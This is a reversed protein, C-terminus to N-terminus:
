TVKICFRWKYQPDEEFWLVGQEGTTCPTKDYYRVMLYFKLFIDKFFICYVIIAGQCANFNLNVQV